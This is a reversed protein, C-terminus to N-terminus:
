FEQLLVQVSYQVDRLEQLDLSGTVLLSSCCGLCALLVVVRAMRADVCKVRFNTLVSQM